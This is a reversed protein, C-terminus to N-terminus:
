VPCREILARGARYASWLDQGDYTVTALDRIRPQANVGVKHTLTEFLALDSSSDGYVVCSEHDLSLAALLERTIRLKDERTVLQEAGAANGPSVLAGFAADLGWKALREVFFKPSQSIVASHEGRAHIDEFVAQVGDLWPANAFADDIERTTLGHWLPLCNKWFGNDSLEGRAWAQEIFVTQEFVGASRSIELTASGVLLTGDMDFVHLCTM